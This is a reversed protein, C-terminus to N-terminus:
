GSSPSSEPDPRSCGLDTRSHPHPRHRRATGESGLRRFRRHQHRVRPPPPVDCRCDPRRRRRRRDAHEPRLRDSPPLRGPREGPRADRVRDRSGLVDPVEASGSRRSAVGHRNRVGAVYRDHRRPPRRAPRRRDHQRRSGRRPRLARLAERRRGLTAADGRLLPGRAHAPLPRGSPGLGRAGARGGRLRAGTRARRRRAAGPPRALRPRRRIGRNRPPAARPDGAHARRCRPTEAERFAREPPREAGTRCGSRSPPVPRRRGAGSPRGRATAGPAGGEGRVM